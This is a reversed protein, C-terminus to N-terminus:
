KIFRVQLNLKIFTKDNATYLEGFKHRSTSATEYKVNKLLYEEFYNRNYIHYALVSGERTVIIYGGSAEDIGNWVTAPRMGLAVSALFKKFKYSYAYINGFNMPNKAELKKVMDYCNIIGDRYFYLLTEAIIKDMNSDILVLNDKFIKNQMEHYLLFGGKEYIKSIRGRVDTHRKNGSTVYIGNTEDLINKYEHIIRYIFNTTRGANLLTPASGLESKISFGVVPNYGTNIDLIKMTIDSKDTAPASLRYCNIENMFQETKEISFAGRSKGNQISNLLKDAEIDFRKAPITMTEVGNIFLKIIQGTTYEATENETEERIIKIIPFYVDNLRNLNEDAAFIKGDALLRLLVYIESWEGKNGRLM